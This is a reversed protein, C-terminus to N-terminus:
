RAQTARVTSRAQRNELLHLLHLIHFLRVQLLGHHLVHLLWVHLLWVHLLGHHLVLLGNQLRNKLRNILYRANAM